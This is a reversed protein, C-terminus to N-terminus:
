EMVSVGDVKVDLDTLRKMEDFTAIILDGGQSRGTVSREEEAVEMLYKKLYAVFARQHDAVDFASILQPFIEAVRISPMPPLLRKLTDDKILVFVAGKEYPGRYYCNAQCLGSAIMALHHGTWSELPVRPQTFATVGEAEGMKKMELASQLFPSPIESSENAWSWLWTNTVESESGLIQVKFSHKKKFLLKGTTFTVTGAQINLKWEHEGLFDGLALQKDLAMGAHEHFLGELNQLNSM